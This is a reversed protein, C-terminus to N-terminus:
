WSVNISYIQNNSFKVMDTKFGDKELRNTLYELEVVNMDKLCCRKIIDQISIGLSYTGNNRASVEIFWLIDKYVHEMRKELDGERDEIFTRTLKNMRQAPTEAIPTETM